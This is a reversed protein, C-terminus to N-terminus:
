IQFAILKTIRRDLSTTVSTNFTPINRMTRIKIVKFPKGGMGIRLQIFFGFQKTDLTALVFAIIILWGILLLGILALIFDFVRKIFREKGDM